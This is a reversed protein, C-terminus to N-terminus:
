ATAALLLRGAHDAATLKCHIKQLELNIDIWDKIQQETYEMGVARSFAKGEVWETVTGIFKPATGPADSQYFKGVTGPPTLKM